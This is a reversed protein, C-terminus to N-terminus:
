RHRRRRPVARAPGAHGRRRRDDGHEVRRDGAAGRLGHTLAQRMFAQALRNETASSEDLKEYGPLLLLGAGGSYKTDFYRMPVRIAPYLVDEREGRLAEAFEEADAPKGRLVFRDEQAGVLDDFRVLYAAPETVEADEIVFVPVLEGQGMDPALWEELGYLEQVISTEGVASRRRVGRVMPVAGSCMPSPRLPRLQRRREDLLRRGDEDDLAFLAEEVRIAAGTLDSLAARIRESPPLHDFADTTDTM